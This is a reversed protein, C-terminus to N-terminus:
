QVVSAVVQAILTAGATSPHKDCGGGELPILLGAACADGGTAYSAYAFASFVDATQAGTAAAVQEIVGNLYYIAGTTFEDAYNTSYYLPLIIQGMYGAQRLSGVTYGLYQGATALVGPLGQMVCGMDGLCGYLLLLLDNAGLQVTILKVKDHTAVYQMAFDYQTGSYDVHLTPRSVAPAEPDTTGSRRFDDCGNDGIYPSIWPRLGQAPRPRCARTPHPAFGPTSAATM